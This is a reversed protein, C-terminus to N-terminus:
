FGGGIMQGRFIAGQEVTDLRQQVNGLEALVQAQTATIAISQGISLGAAFATIAAALPIGIGTAAYGTAVAILASVTSNVVALLSQLMKTLAKSVEDTTQSAIKATIAILQNVAGLGIMIDRRHEKWWTITNNVKESLSDLQAEATTTNVLVDIIVPESVM